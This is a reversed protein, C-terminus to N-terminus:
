RADGVIRRLHQEAGAVDEIDFLGQRMVEGRDRPDLEEDVRGHRSGADDSDGGVSWGGGLNVRPNRQSRWSTWRPRDCRDMRFVVSGEGGGHSLTELCNMDHSRFSGTRPLPFRRHVVAPRDTVAYITARAALYRGIPFLLAAVAAVALPLSAVFRAGEDLGRALGAPDYQILAAAGAFLVGLALGTVADMATRKAPDPRGVWHLREGVELLREARRALAPDRFGGLSRARGIAV